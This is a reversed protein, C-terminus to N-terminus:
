KHEAGLKLYKTCPLHQISAAGFSNYSCPKKYFLDWRKKSETFCRETCTYFCNNIYFFSTIIETISFMTRVIGM